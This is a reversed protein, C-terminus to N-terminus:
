TMMLFPLFTKWLAFLAYYVFRLRLAATETQRFLYKKRCIDGRVASPSRKQRDAGKPEKTAVEGWPPSGGDRPLAPGAGQVTGRLDTGRCLVHYKISLGSGCGYPQPKENKRWICASNTAPYPLAPLYVTIDSTFLPLQSSFTAPAPLTHYSAYLPFDGTFPRELLYM